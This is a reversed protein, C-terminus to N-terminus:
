TVHQIAKRVNMFIANGDSTRAVIQDTAGALLPVPHCNSGGGGGWQNKSDIKVNKEKRLIHVRDLSTGASSEIRLPWSIANKQAHGGELRTKQWPCCTQDGIPIERRLFCDQRRWQIQRKIKAHIVCFFALPFHQIPSVTSTETLSVLSIVLMDVLASEALSIYCRLYYM